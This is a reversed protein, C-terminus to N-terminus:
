TAGSIAAGSQVPLPIQTAVGLLVLPARVALAGDDLVRLMAPLAGCEADKTAAAGGPEPAQTAPAEEWAGDRWGGLAQLLEM